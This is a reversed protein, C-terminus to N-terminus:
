MISRASRALTAWAPGERRLARLVAIGLVVYGIAPLLGTEGLLLSEDGGVFFKPFLWQSITNHFSHFFVAPWLSRARYALCASLFSVPLDAAAFLVTTAVLNRGGLYGAGVMLPLHYALQVLWVVVVSFRVGAADLRPQLYGRWGLEEGLATFTGLPVLIALNVVLNAAIRAGSTWKGDGPSFTVLGSSWAIFYAASYVMLPLALPELIVRAGTVGWRRLTLTGTFGRDVTARTVLRALAPAWMALPGLIAWAPSAVTWGNTHCLEAIATTAGVAIASFVVLARWPLM